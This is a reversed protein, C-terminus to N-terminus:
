FGQYGQASVYISMGGTNAVFNIATAATGRLPTDFAFHVPTTMSAPLWTSWIVTTGDQVSVAGAQAATNILQINTIHNRISAAGATRLVVATTTTVPTAVPTAYQFTTESASFPKTIVQQGTTIPLQARDNAVLSTDITAAVVTGGVFVPNGSNAASHAVSGTCNSATVTGSIAQTGTTQLGPIPETAYTGRQIGWTASGSTYSITRIRFWNYANVSCEWSYNIATGAATTLAGSATEVTNANSRVAQLIVWTGDNGNTSNLSGEFQINYGSLTTAVSLMQVMVNSCRSTDVSLFSNAALATTLSTGGNATIAGSVIAFSASKSAVKLRGEEDMKFPTYDGDQNTMTTDGLQRVGMIFVGSDGDVHQTDEAFTGIGYAM